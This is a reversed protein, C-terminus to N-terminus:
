YPLGKESNTHVFFHNLFLPQLLAKVTESMATIFFVIDNAAIITLTMMVSTEIIKSQSRM